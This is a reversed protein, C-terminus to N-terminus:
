PNNGGKLLSNLYLRYDELTSLDQELQFKQAQCQSTLEAELQEASAQLFAASAIEGHMWTDNLREGKALPGYEGKEGKVLMSDAAHLSQQALEFAEGKAKTQDVRAEAAHAQAVSTRALALQAQSSCGILLVLLSAGLIWRTM